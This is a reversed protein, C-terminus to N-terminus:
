CWRGQFPREKCAGTGPLEGRGISIGKAGSDASKETGPHGSLRAQSDEWSRGQTRSGATGLGEPQSLGSQLALPSPQTVAPVPHSPLRGARPLTEVPSPLPHPPLFALFSSASPLLPFPPPPPLLVLVHGPARNSPAVAICELFSGSVSSPPLLPSSPDLHCMWSESPKPTPVAWAALVGPPGPPLHEPAARVSLM